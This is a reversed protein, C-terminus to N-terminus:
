IWGGAAVEGGGHGARYLVGARRRERAAASCSGGRALGKARKGNGRKSAGSRRRWGCFPPSGLGAM